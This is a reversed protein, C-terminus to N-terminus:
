EEGASFVFVMLTSPEPTQPHFPRTTKGGHTHTGTCGLCKLSGGM